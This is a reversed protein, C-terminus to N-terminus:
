QPQGAPQQPQQPLDRPHDGTATIGQSCSASAGERSANVRLASIFEDIRKDNADPVKLQYGWAQLSVPSDLGKFPSMLMKERGRVKGALKEVQDKPLDPRYTIWIAGHELSHVAHEQAIPADYVDGMCNQWDNNHVGGVAPNVRYAIPGQKHKEYELMKPDKERYNILGPIADAREQWTRDGKRVTWAGYGVIGAAILVVVAILAIFGWNRGGPATAAAVPRRPGGGGPKKGGAAQKGANSPRSGGGTAQKGRTAQRGGGAQRRGSRGGGAPQDGDAASLHRERGGRVSSSM